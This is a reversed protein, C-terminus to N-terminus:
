TPSATTSGKNRRRSMAGGAKGSPEICGELAGGIVMGGGSSPAVTSAGEGVARGAAGDPAYLAAAKPLRGGLGADGGAAGEAKDDDGVSDGGVSSAVTIAGRGGCTVRGGVASRAGM